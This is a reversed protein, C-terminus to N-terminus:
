PRQKPRGRPRLTAELGLHRATRAQWEPAGFPRGRQLSARVAELERDTQPANLWEIWRQPRPVPWDALLPLLGGQSHLRHWASGWRWKEARDALGARVPNRQVYRVVTLFHEDHQVPFSKFRGQYIPGGGTHGHFANHRETHTMTLWHMFRSLDRDAKPWLVFHWHNPLVSYELIPVPHRRWAEALAEEFAEYDLDTAFITQGRVSRNLVHCVQGGLGQRLRRPM